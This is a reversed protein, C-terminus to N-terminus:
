NEIWVMGGEMGNRKKKKKKPITLKQPGFNVDNANRSSKRYLKPTMQPGMCVGEHVSDLFSFSLFVLPLRPSFTVQSSAYKGKLCPAFPCVKRNRLSNDVAWRDLTINDQTM